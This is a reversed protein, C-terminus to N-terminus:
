TINIKDVRAQHRGGEFPTMWFNKVIETAILPNTFRAGLCLVNADNHQRTLTALEPEYILAARVGKVKNAAMSMGIGSGCVLIGADFEGSGVRKAVEKAFDPYDVSASGHTGADLIRIDPAFLLKLSSVLLPGAHDCGIVM